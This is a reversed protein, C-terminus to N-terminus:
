AGEGWALWVIEVEGGDRSAIAHLTGPPVYITEGAEVEIWRHGYRMRAKGQVFVFAQPYTTTDGEGNLVEDGRISYWASRFGPHYFLGVMAAGHLDRAAARSTTVREPDGRNFFHTLFHFVPALAMRPADEPVASGPLIELPSGRGADDKGAATIGSMEGRYLQALVAADMECAFGPDPAPGPRLEVDGGDLPVLHWRGGPSGSLNLQVVTAVEEVPAWTFRAALEQM